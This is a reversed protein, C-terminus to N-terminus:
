QERLLNPLWLVIWVARYRLRGRGLPLLLIMSFAAVKPCTRTAQSATMDLNFNAGHYVEENTHGFNEVFSAM